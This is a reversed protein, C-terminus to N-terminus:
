HGNMRMDRITGCGGSGSGWEVGSWAGLVWAGLRGAVWQEGVVGVAWPGLSGLMWVKRITKLLNQRTCNNVSRTDWRALEFAGVSLGQPRLTERLGSRHKALHSSEVSLVNSQALNNTNHTGQYKDCPTRFRRLAGNVSAIVLAVTGLNRRKAWRPNLTTASVLM